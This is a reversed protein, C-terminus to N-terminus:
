SVIKASHLVKLEYDRSKYYNDVENYKLKNYKRWKFFWGYFFGISKRFDYDIVFLNRSLPHSIKILSLESFPRLLSTLLTQNNLLVVKKARYAQGLGYLIWNKHSKNPDDIGPTVSLSTSYEAKLQPHEYFRQSWETDESGSLEENYLGVIDFVSKKVVLNPTYLQASYNTGFYDRMWAYNKDFVTNGVDYNLKGVVADQNNLINNLNEFYKSDFVCDSDIFVIYDGKAALIGVNRALSINSRVTILIRINNQKHYRSVLQNVLNDNSGNCVVICESFDTHTANLFSDITNIVRVDNKVPIVLSYKM